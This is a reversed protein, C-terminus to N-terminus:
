KRGKKHPKQLSFGDKAALEEMYKMTDLTAQYHKLKCVYRSYERRAEEETKVDWNLDWAYSLGSAQTTTNITITPM